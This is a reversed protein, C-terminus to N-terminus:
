RPPQSAVPTLATGQHGDGCQESTARALGFAEAIVWAGSVFVGGLLTWAFWAEGLWGPRALFPALLAPDIAVGYSGRLFLSSQAYTTPFEAYYHPLLTWALTIWTLSVALVAVVPLLRWPRVLTCLGITLWLVAPVMVPFLWRGQIGTAVGTVVNRAPAQLATLLVAVGFFVSLVKFQRHHAALWLPPRQWARVVGALGVLLVALYGVAVAAPLHVSSGGYNGVERTMTLHYQPLNDFFARGLPLLDPWALDEFAGRAKMQQALQGSRALVIAGTAALAVWGATLAGRMLGTPLRRRVAPDWTLVAVLPALALTTVAVGLATDKVSLAAIAFAMALLLWVLRAVVRRTIAMLVVAAFAVAAAANALSDPTFAAQYTVLVPQSALGLGTLLALRPESPAIARGAMLGAAVILVISVGLVGRAM